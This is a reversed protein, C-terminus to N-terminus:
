DFSAITEDFLKLVCEHGMTNNHTVVLVNDRNASCIRRRWPGYYPDVAPLADEDVHRALAAIAPNCGSWPACGSWNCAEGVAGVACYQGKGNVLAGAMWNERKSIMGRAEELVQKTTM